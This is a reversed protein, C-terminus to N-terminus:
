AVTVTVSSLFTISTNPVRVISQNMREAVITVTGASIGRLTLLTPATVLVTCISEDSSSWRVDCAAVGTLPVGASTTVTPTIDQTAAVALTYPGAPAFSITDVVPFLVDPLNACPMDPVAIQRQVDEAGQVTALYNAGRILDVCAYGDRETRICRRESLVASDELLIPSFGALFMIDVWAQPAGTIDRFYGSCRCLRADSAIPHVFITGYATFGNALGAVVDIVQPQTVQVGFKYFRLTYTAEPLTFGALGLYNTVDQSQFTAGTVDFVRVTVGEIPLHSPTSDCVYVNVSEM